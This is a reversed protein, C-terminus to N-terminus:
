QESNGKGLQFLSLTKMVEDVIAAALVPDMVKNENEPTTWGRAVAGTVEDLLIM